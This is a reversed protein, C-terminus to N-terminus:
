ENGAEKLAAELAAVNAQHSNFTLRASDLRRHADRLAEEADRLWRRESELSKELLGKVYEDM